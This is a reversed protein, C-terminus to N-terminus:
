RSPQWGSGSPSVNLTTPHKLDPPCFIVMKPIHRRQHAITTYNANTNTTKNQGTQEQGSDGRTPVTESKNSLKKPRLHRSKLTGQLQKACTKQQAKTTEEYRRAVNQERSLLLTTNCESSRNDTATTIQHTKVSASISLLSSRTLKNNRQRKPSQQQQTLQENWDRLLAEKETDKVFFGETKAPSFKPADPADTSIPETRQRLVVCEVSVGCERTYQTNGAPLPAIILTSNTCNFPCILLM